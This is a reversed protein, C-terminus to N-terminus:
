RLMLLVIVILLLFVVAGGLAWNLWTLNGARPRPTTTGRSLSGFGLRVPPLQTDESTSPWADPDQIPPLEIRLDIPPGAALAAQEERVDEELPALDLEEDPGAAASAKSRASARRSRYGEELLTKAYYPNLYGAEVLKRAVHVAHVDCGAAALQDRLDDVHDRAMIGRQEILDLLEAATWSM